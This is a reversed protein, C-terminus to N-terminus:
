NIFWVDTGKMVTVLKIFVQVVSLYDASCSSTSQNRGYLSKKTSRFIILYLFGLM